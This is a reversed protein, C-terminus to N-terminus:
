SVRHPCGSIDIWAIRSEVQPAGGIDNILGAFADADRNVQNGDLSGVVHAHDDFAKRLGTGNGTRAADIYPSALKPLRRISGSATSKMM